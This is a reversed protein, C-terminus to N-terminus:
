LIERTLTENRTVFYHQVYTKTILARLETWGGKAVSRAAEAEFTAIEERLGRKGFWPLDQMLLYKTQGVRSPNLTANREGMRTIDMLEVRLKPDPLAGAPGIREAAADADFRMAAYEINRERAYTLLSDLSAGPVAEQAMAFGALAFSACALTWQQICSPMADT